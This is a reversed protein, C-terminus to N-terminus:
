SYALGHNCPQPLSPVRSRQLQRQLMDGGEGGGGLMGWKARQRGSRGESIGGGGDWKGTRWM